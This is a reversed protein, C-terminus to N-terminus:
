RKRRRGKRLCHKTPDMISDEYTYICGVEMRKTGGHIREKRGAEGMSGGYLGWMCEHRMIMMMTAMM